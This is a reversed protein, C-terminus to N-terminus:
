LMGVLDENIKDTQAIVDLHMNHSNAKERALSRVVPNQV